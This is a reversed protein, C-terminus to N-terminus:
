GIGSLKKDVLAFIEHQMKLLHNFLEASIHRETNAIRAIQNINSGIKNIEGYLDRMLERNIVTFRERTLCCKRIFEAVNMGAEQATRVLQFQESQTLRFKVQVGRKLM